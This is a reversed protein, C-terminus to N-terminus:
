VHTLDQSHTNCWTSWSIYWSYWRVGPFLYYHGEDIILFIKITSKMPPVSPTTNLCLFEPVKM